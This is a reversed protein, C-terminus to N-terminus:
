RGPVGLKLLLSHIEAALARRDLSQPKAALRIVLDRVPLAIRLQRFKERCIRKVLNRRVAAKLLRKPVVIGLRATSEEAASRPRYHLLFHPSRLARRFGFVSSYEDTKTLRYRRPFGSGSGPEGTGGAGATTAAKSLCGSSSPGQCPSCRHRSPWGQHAHPGPFRSYAQPPRRFTSLHTEHNIGKIQLSSFRTILCGAASSTLVM